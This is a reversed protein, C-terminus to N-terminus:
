QFYKGKGCIKEHYSQGFDILQTMYNPNVIVNSPSLDMHVVNYQKILRLGQLVNIMLYIKSSFSLMESRKNLFNFMNDSNTIVNMM